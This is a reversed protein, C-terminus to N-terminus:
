LAIRLVTIIIGAVGAAYLIIQFTKVWFDLQWNISSKKAQEDKIYAFAEETRKDVRSLTEKIQIIEASHFAMEKVQKEIQDIRYRLIQDESM